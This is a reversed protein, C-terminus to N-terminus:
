MAKDDAQAQRLLRVVEHPSEGERLRRAVTWGLVDTHLDSPVLGASRLDRALKAQGRRLGDAM